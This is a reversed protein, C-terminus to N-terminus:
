RVEYGAAYGVELGEEGGEVVVVGVAFSEEGYDVGVFRAVQGYLL